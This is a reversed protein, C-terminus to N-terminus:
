FIWVVVCACKVSYLLHLSGFVTLFASVYVKILNMGVLNKGEKFEV